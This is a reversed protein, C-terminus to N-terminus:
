EKGASRREVQEGLEEKERVYSLCDFTKVYQVEIPSEQDIEEPPPEDKKVRNEVFRAIQGRFGDYSPQAFRLVPHYVLIGASRHSQQIYQEIDYVYNDRKRVQNVAVVGFAIERPSAMQILDPDVHSGNFALCINEFVLVDDWFLETRLLTQLAMVKEFVDPLVPVGLMERLETELTEPEWKEWDPFRASLLSRLTRPLIEEELILDSVAM